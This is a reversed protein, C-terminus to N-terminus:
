LYASINMIWIFLCGPLHSTMQCPPYSCLIVSSLCLFSDCVQRLFLQSFLIYYLLFAPFISFPVCFIQCPLLFCHPFAFYLDQWHISQLIDRRVIWFIIYALLLKVHGEMPIWNRYVGQFSSPLARHQSATSKPTLSPPEPNEPFPFTTPKWCGNASIAM